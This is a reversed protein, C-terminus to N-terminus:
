YGAAHDDGRKDAIAEIKGNTIKILEVRGIPKREEMKYGLETLKTRIPMPFDTEVYVLGAVM